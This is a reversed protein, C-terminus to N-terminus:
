WAIGMGTWDQSVANREFLFTPPHSQCFRSFQIKLKDLKIEPCVIEMPDLLEHDLPSLYVQQGYEYSLTAILSQRDFVGDGDIYYGNIEAVVHNIPITYTSVAILSTRPLTSAIATALLLCGGHTWDTLSYDGPFQPDLIGFIEDTRLWSQFRASWSTSPTEM